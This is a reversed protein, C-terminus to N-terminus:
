EHEFFTHKPAYTNHINNLQENTSTHHCETLQDLDKLRCNNKGRLAAELKKYPLSGV